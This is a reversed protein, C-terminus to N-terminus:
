CLAASPFFAQEAYLNSIETAFRAAILERKPVGNTTLLDEELQLSHALRQWGNIRAYDPLQENVSDIWLQLESDSTSSSRPSILAICFPKADGLVVAELVAPNALLSSEVWEPSINRGFSSILVNKKRGSIYLFGDEDLFGLDGTRVLDQGWSTPDNIYGLMTNGSVCVEGEDFCIELQPLPKGVSGPKDDSKTNLSVVSCCESLGFGEYVPLGIRHAAILLSEAVKSGGVAIFKLSKPPQWGQTAASVLLQLLQPVLIITEPQVQSIVALLKEQDLQSSGGFGLSHLSPAVIEGKALLPAYIGAVNELLTSLPLLCLHLPRSIAVRQRLSEAQHLLQDNSLCVGKPQGTSGSTFTIKGTGEPMRKGNEEIDLSIIQLSTGDLTGIPKGSITSKSQSFMASDSLLVDAQCSTLAHEIQATSFFTPLPLICIDSHQTVLDILIWDIGNDAHLALCHINLKELHERIQNSRSLIEEATYSRNLDHIVKDDLLYNEAISALM